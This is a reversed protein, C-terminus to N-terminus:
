AARWDGFVVKDAATLGCFDEIAKKVAFVSKDSEQVDPFMTEDVYDHIANSIWCLISDPTAEVWEGSLRCEVEEAQEHVRKEIWAAMQRTPFKFEFHIKLKTPSGTQIGRLRSATDHTIGVKAVKPWDAEEAVVYLYTTNPM